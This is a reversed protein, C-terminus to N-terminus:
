FKNGFAKRYIEEMYSSEEIDIVVNDEENVGSTIEYYIDDTLNTTVIKEVFSHPKGNKQIVWITQLPRESSKQKGKIEKKDIAHCSYGLDEAIEKIVKSSIMFAQSSLTLVKKKKAIFVTADVSLGPRLLRESNNVPVMAKFYLTGASKKPSYGIQKIETKFTKFPLSDVTFCVKQGKKVYGIDSEDIELNAEMKTVDKAIEVLITADLDTTIKQGETVGVNIVIGEQPSTIKTNALEEAAKDYRAKSSILGGKKTLYDREAQEIEDRSLQEIAFLAKQRTYYNKYYLYEAQSKELEGKAERVDADGKGTEILALMDGKKVPQNEDVYLKQVTGAVLSGIKIKESVSIKGTTEITKEITRYEPKKTIYPLKTLKKFFKKQIFLATGSVTVIIIAWFLINKRKM